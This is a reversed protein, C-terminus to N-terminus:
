NEFNLTPAVDTEYLLNSFHRANATRYRGVEQMAIQALGFRMEATTGREEMIRELVKNYDMPRVVAAVSPWNKAAAMIMTPGGIDINGRAEEPTVGPKAAVKEFPYLNVVALDFYVGKIGTPESMTERLYREHEHNGREALLGAHIKPHLTKVLGGQMEPAGTFSEVSIYNDAAMPGLVETIKKGTGGTSYFKVDPNIAVLGNVLQDLRDKDFVSLLVHQVQILDKVKHENPRITM